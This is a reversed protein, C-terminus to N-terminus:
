LYYNEVGKGFGQHTFLPIKREQESSFGVASVAWGPIVELLYGGFKMEFDLVSNWIPM